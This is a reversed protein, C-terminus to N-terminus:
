RRAGGGGYSNPAFERRPVGFEAGWSGGLGAFKVRSGGFEAALPPPASCRLAASRTPVSLCACCLCVCLQYTPLLTYEVKKTWGEPAPMEVSVVEEEAAAAAQQQEGDTAM